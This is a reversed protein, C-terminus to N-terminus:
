SKSPDSGTNSGKSTKENVLSSVSESSGSTRLPISKMASEEYELEVEFKEGEVKWSTCDELLILLELTNDLYSKMSSTYSQAVFLSETLSFPFGHDAWDQQLAALDKASKPALEELTHHAHRIVDLIKPFGNDDPRVVEIDADEVPVSLPSKPLRNARARIRERYRQTAPADAGDSARRKRSTTSAQRTEDQENTM